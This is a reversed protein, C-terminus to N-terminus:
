FFLKKQLGKDRLKVFDFAFYPVRPYFGRCFLMKVEHEPKAETLNKQLPGTQQSTVIAGEKTLGKYLAM